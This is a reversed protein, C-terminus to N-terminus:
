HLDDEVELAKLLTNYKTQNEYSDYVQRKIVLTNKYYTGLLSGCLQTEEQINPKVIEWAELKAKIQQLHNKHEKVIKEQYSTLDRSLLEKEQIKLYKEIWELDTM